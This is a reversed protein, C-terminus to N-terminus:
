GNSHARYRITNPKMRASATLDTAASEPNLAAVEGDEACGAPAAIGRRERMAESGRIAAV